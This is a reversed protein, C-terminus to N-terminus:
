NASFSSVKDNFGIDELNYLTGGSKGQFTYSRGKFRSEEYVTVKCGEQVWVSSIRDNWQKRMTRREGPKATLYDGNGGANEYLKCCVNRGAAGGGKRDDKSVPNPPVLRDRRDQNNDTKGGPYSPVVRRNDDEKGGPYSPVVRRNEDDKGGPYSPMVRRDSRGSDDGRDSEASYSSISDNFGIDGLNYLTGSGRGYLTYSEGRFDKDKYITVRYGSRIWVSSTKDNWRNGIYNSNMAASQFFSGGGNQHEYFKCVVNGTTSDDAGTDIDREVAYASIKDNFGIDSLNYMAGGQKGYLTHSKGGFDAHEYITVKCGNQIWVSSIEDNWRDGLRESRAIGSQLFEGRGDSDKYFRCYEQAACIEAFCFILCFLFMLPRVNKKRKM